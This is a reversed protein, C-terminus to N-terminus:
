SNTPMNTKPNYWKKESNYWYLSQHPNQEIVDSKYYFQRIAYREGSTIKRVGHAQTESHAFIVASNHIPSAEFLTKERKDDWIEFEGGRCSGLYILLNVARHMRIRNNWNFDIHSDLMDNPQMLSVGEGTGFSDIVLGNIKTEEEVWKVFPKSHLYCRLKNLWQGEGYYEKMHSNNRNFNKWESVSKFESLLDVDLYDKLFNEYYKM